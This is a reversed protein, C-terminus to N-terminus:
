TLCNIDLLKKIADIFTRNEERRRVAVRFFTSDMGPFLSCDRILIGENLLAAQLTASSIDKQLIKVLFYNASSPYAKLGAIANLGNYLFEREEEFWRTTAMIFDADQLSEIGAIIALTNVSWPPKFDEFRKVLKKNSIIYGLRLGAMGFFKTMSRIVILNDLHAAERKVSENEAFDMFAEDVVLVASSRSCEKAMEVVDKKQLLVGTPNAPNCLYVMDCGARVASYLRKVDPIFGEDEHAMFDKIECGCLELANRYESFAPEVIIARKPRFIQPILHIFETSGNGAIINESSLNHFKALGHRIMDACPEPYHGLISVSEMMRRRADPSLGLPNISASFDIIDEPKFSNEKAIKWINGGHTKNMCINVRM